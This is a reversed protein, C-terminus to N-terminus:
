SVPVPVTPLASRSSPTLHRPHGSAASQGAFDSGAGPVVDTVAAYLAAATLRGDAPRTETRSSAKPAVHGQCAQRRGECPTAWRGQRGRTHCQWGAATRRAAVAGAAVVALVAVGAGAAALRRRRRLKTGQERSREVLTALDAHNHDVTEHMRDRLTTMVPGRDPEVLDPLHTRLRALARSARARCTSERIGLLHATDAVCLDEWYRLVLM